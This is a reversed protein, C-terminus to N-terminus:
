CTKEIEITQFLGLLPNLPSLVYETGKIFPYMGAPLFAKHSVGGSFLYALPTHVRIDRVCLEPIKKRLTERDRVFMIWPLAGNAASLRGEGEFSWGAKVDFPESHFHLTVFRCWPTNAPEIMIIKGRPRLCRSMERLCKLARPLHHFVNLLLFADVSGDKFPMKEASFTHDVWPACFLDSTIVDPIVEKIFGGGSGIEVTGEQSREAPLRQKLENYFDVYVRKLFPKSQIIHHHVISTEPSNVDAILTADPIKLFKFLPM